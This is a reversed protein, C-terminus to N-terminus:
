GRVHSAERCLAAIKRASEFIARTWHGKHRLQLIEAEGELFAAAAAELAVGRRDLADSDLIPYVRPLRIVRM